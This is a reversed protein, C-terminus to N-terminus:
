DIDKEKKQLEIGKCNSYSRAEHSYWNIFLLLRVTFVNTPLVIKVRELYCSFNLPKDLLRPCLVLCSM